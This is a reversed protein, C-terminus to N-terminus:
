RPLLKRWDAGVFSALDALAFPPLENLQEPEDLASAIEWGVADELAPLTLGRKGQEEKLMAALEDLSLEDESRLAFFSRLELQVLDALRLLQSWSLTTIIEDDFWELDRYSEFTIGLKSALEGPDRGSARRARALQKAYGPGDNLDSAVLITQDL